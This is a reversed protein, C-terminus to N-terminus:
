KREEIQEQLRQRTLRLAEVDGLVAKAEDEAVQASQVKQHVLEVEGEMLALRQQLSEEHSRRLLLEQELEGVRQQLGARASAM